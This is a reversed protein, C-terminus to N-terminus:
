HIHEIISDIVERNLDLDFKRAILKNSVKLKEIDSIDLTRPSNAPRRWDIYRLNDNIVNNKFKSNLILIQFFHEDPCLTYKFYNIYMPNRDIYELIYNMCKSTITFWSSGHYLKLGKFNNRKIIPKQIRRLINDIVRMYTKRINKSERFLNYIKLRFLDVNELESYEIFEKGKNKSLYEEISKNNKIPFDQGSIFSIYDYKKETNKIEKMSNITAQVQSFGSWNVDVRNSILFINNKNEIYTKINDYLDKNKLDIHIYLDNNPDSLHMLLLKLQEYGKHAAIIYAIRM